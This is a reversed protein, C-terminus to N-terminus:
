SETNGSAEADLIVTRVPDAIRLKFVRQYFAGLNHFKLRTVYEGTKGLTAFKEKSWTKGGDDSYTLMAQPNETGNGVGSEIDVELRDMFVRRRDGHITPTSATRFITEGNDDYLGLSSQYIKGNRYDSVYHKENLFAYAGSLHRGTLGTRRQHWARGVDRISADYVWTANGEPFAM